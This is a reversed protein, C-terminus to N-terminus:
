KSFHISQRVAEGIVMGASVAVNLSRLGGPMPITLRDDVAAHIYDEVGSSERGMMIIDNDQFQREYYPHSAKTTLLVLNYGEDLRWQNFADWSLHRKIDTKDLYDMGARRLAKVSFPFGCPEIIDVPLGMCAATRIMTGTNQPIEPQYLALRM